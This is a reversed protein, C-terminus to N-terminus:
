AARARAMAAILDGAQGTTSVRIVGPMRATLIVRDGCWVLAKGADVAWGAEVFHEGGHDHAIVYVVDASLLDARNRARIESAQEASLEGEDAQTPYPYKSWTSVIECGKARLGEAIITDVWRARDLSTAVYVKLREM